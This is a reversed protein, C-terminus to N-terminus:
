LRRAFGRVASFVETSGEIKLVFSSLCYLALFVVLEVFFATISEGGFVTGAAMACVSAIGAVALIPILTCLQQMRTFGHVAKAPALDIVVVNLVSTILNVLAVLVIDGTAIAVAATAVGGVVVKATQLALYLDSRGLAMYARLNVIQLILVVNGLCACAFVPACGAWAEGLLLRVIPDAAVSAFCSIPVVVFSGASLMRRMAAQLSVRDGQLHAFLPLFVNQLANSFLQIGANPWKRGQSYFGLEAATCTRGLILESVSTYLTNLIGTACIKWGYSFLSRAVEVDFESTPRWPSLVALAICASIAQSVCQAVLAWIGAGVIATAIGVVGSVLMASVNARALTRFDMAKQLYSRQISNVSNFVFTLSLVRLPAVLGLMSYFREVLPAAAFLVAYMALAIGLSLWLATSYERPGAGERQILATGMGSQAVSDAVQTFVLLIALLGFVEPALLRALVLQVALQVLKSGGQEIFSWILSKIM